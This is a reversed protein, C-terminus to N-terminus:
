TGPVEWQSVYPFSLTNRGAWSWGACSRCPVPPASSSLMSRSLTVGAVELLGVLGPSSLPLVPLPPLWPPPLPLGPLPSEPPSSREQGSRAAPMPPEVGTFGCPAHRPLCRCEASSVPCFRGEHVRAGRLWGRRCMLVLGGADGTTCPAKRQRRAPSPLSMYIGFHQIVPRRSCRSLFHKSVKCSGGRVRCGCPCAPRCRRVGMWVERMIGFWYGRVAPKRSRMRRSKTAATATSARAEAGLGPSGSERATRESRRERKQRRTGWSCTNTCM